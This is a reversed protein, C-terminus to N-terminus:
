IIIIGTPPIGQPVTCCNNPMDFTKSTFIGNDFYNGIDILDAIYISRHLKGCMSYIKIVSNRRDAVVVSGDQMVDVGTLWPEAQDTLSDAKFSFVPSEAAVVEKEKVPTMIQIQRDSHDDKIAEVVGM